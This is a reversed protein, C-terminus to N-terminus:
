CTNEDHGGNDCAVAPVNDEINFGQAIDESMNVNHVLIDDPKATTSDMSLGHAIDGYNNVSHGAFDSEAATTIDETNLSCADGITRRPTPVSLAHTALLDGMM